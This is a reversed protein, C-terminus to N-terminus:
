LNDFCFFGFVRDNEYSFSHSAKANHLLKEYNIVYFTNTMCM